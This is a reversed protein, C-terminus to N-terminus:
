AAGMVRTWSVLTGTPRDNWTKPKVIALGLSGVEMQALVAKNLKGDQGPWLKIENTYEHGNFLVISLSEKTEQYIRIDAKVIVGVVGLLRYGKEYTNLTTPLSFINNWSYRVDIRTKNTGDHREPKVWLIDGESLTPRNFGMNKLFSVCFKTIDYQVFPNISYRWLMLHGMSNIKAIGIMENKNKKPLKAKSGMAALLETALQPYREQVPIAMTEKSLMEDFAGGYLLRIVSPANLGTKGAEKRYSKIKGIFETWTMTTM